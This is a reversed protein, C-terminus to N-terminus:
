AGAVPSREEPRKGAEEVRPMELELRGLYDVKIKSMYAEFM